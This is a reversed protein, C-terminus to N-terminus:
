NGESKGIAEFLMTKSNQIHQIIAKLSEIEEATYKLMEASFDTITLTQSKSQAAIKM